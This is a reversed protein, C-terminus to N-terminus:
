GRNKLWSWTGYGHYIVCLANLCNFFFVLVFFNSPLYKLIRGHGCFFANLVLQYVEKQGM